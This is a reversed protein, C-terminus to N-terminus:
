TNSRRSEYLICGFEGRTEVCAYADDARVLARVRNSNMQEIRACVGFGERETDTQLAV